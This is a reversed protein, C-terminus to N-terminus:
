LCSYLCSCWSENVHLEVWCLAKLKDTFCKSTQQLLKIWSTSAGCIQRCSKCLNIPMYDWFASCFINTRGAGDPSPVKIFKMNKSHDGALKQMREYAVEFANDLNDIITVKCGHELLSLVTHSGARCIEVDTAVLTLSSLCKMEVDNLTINKRHVTEGIFGIGGTVFVNLGLNSSAMTVQEGPDKRNLPRRPNCALLSCTLQEDKDLNAARQVPESSSEPHVPPRSCLEFENAQFAASKKM